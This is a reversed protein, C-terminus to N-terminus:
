PKKRYVIWHAGHAIVGVLIWIPLVKLAVIGPVDERAAFAAYCLIWVFWRLQALESM